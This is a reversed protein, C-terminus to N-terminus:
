GDFFTNNFTHFRNIATLLDPVQVDKMQNVIGNLIKNFDVEENLTNKNSDMVDLYKNLYEAVAKPATDDFDATEKNIHQIQGYAMTLQSGEKQNMQRALTLIESNNYGLELSKNYSAEVDKRYFTNALSDVQNVLNAIENSQKDDIQGQVSFSINSANSTYIAKDGNGQKGASFALSDFDVEVPTHDRNYIKIAGYTTQEPDLQLQSAELKAAYEKPDIPLNMIGGVISDRTRDITAFLDENALGTLEVKAQEIGVGVGQVAQDRFYDLQESNFGNSAMNSLAKGVFNVVNTTVTEISFLSNDQQQAVEFKDSLSKEKTSYHQERGSNISVDVSRNISSSLVKAVVADNASFASFNQNSPVSSEVASVNSNVGHTGNPMNAIPKASLNTSIQVTNM